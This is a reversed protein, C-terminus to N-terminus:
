CNKRQKINENILIDEFKEIRTIGLKGAIQEKNKYLYCNKIGSSQVASIDTLRDGVMFCENKNVSYHQMIVDLMWCGVDLMGSNPKRFQCNEFINDKPVHPCFMVLDIDINLKKFESLYWNTLEYFEHRTYRGRGIGSQNTVIVLSYDANILNRLFSFIGPEFEFNEIQGVYGKDVNIVGDRDLFAIKKHLRTPLDIMESAICPQIIM